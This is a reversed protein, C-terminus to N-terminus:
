WRRSERGYRQQAAQRSTLDVAEAIQQWTAGADRAAQAAALAREESQVGFDEILRLRELPPRAEVLAWLSRLPEWSMREQVHRELAEWEESPSPKKTDDAM